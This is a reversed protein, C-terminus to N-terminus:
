VGKLRTGLVVHLLHTDSYCTGFTLSLDSIIILGGKWTCTVCFIDSFENLLLIVLGLIHSLPTMAGSLVADHNDDAWVLYMYFIQM